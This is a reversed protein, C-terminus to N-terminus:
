GGVYRYEKGLRSGRPYEKVVVIIKDQALTKLWRWGQTESVGILPGVTRGTLPFPKEGNYRQLERCVSALLARLSGEGYKEVALKPPPLSRAKELIAKMTAGHPVRAEEWAFLFDQWSQWFHPHKGSTSPKALKWWHRLYPKLFEIQTAPLDVFKPMFKIRRVLEFLKRRRTGPRTPLSHVVAEAIASQVDDSLRVEGAAV